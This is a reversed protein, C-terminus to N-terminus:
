FPTKSRVLEALRDRAYTPELRWSCAAEWADIAARATRNRAGSLFPVALDALDLDPHDVRSEDWDVFGIRDGDVRVNDANPDGHVVAREDSLARWAARCAAVADAPMATLDVDGGVDAHLLERTGLFDPRQPWEATVEHLRCLEKTVAPWDYSGPPGGSLWGQVVVGAVHRRGDDAPVTTPVTFGNASLHDMLDLEWDLSAASRRTRRAVLREGRRRLEVVETRHGGGLRGVVTM